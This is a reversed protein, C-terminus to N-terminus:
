LYKLEKLIDINQHIIIEPNCNLYYGNEIQIFEHSLCAKDKEFRTTDHVWDFGNSKGKYDHGQILTATFKNIEVKGYLSNPYLYIVKPHNQLADFIRQTVYESHLVIIKDFSELYRPNNRLQYELHFDDMTYYGLKELTRVGSASGQEHLSISTNIPITLCSEDCRGSYYDYFGKPQYAAETLVPIIVLENGSAGVESRHLQLNLNASANHTLGICLGIAILGGLVFFWFRDSM